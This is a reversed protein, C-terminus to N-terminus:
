RLLTPPIASGLPHNIETDLFAEHGNQESLDYLVHFSTPQLQRSRSRCSGDSRVRAVLAAEGFMPGSFVKAQSGIPLRSDFDSTPV